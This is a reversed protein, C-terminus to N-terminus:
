RAHNHSHLQRPSGQRLQAVGDGLRRIFVQDKRVNQHALITPRAAHFQNLLQKPFRFNKCINKQPPLVTLLFNIPEPITAISNVPAASITPACPGGARPPNPPPGIAPANSNPPKIPPKPPLSTVPLGM